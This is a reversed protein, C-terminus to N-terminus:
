ARKRKSSIKHIVLGTTMGLAGFILPVLFMDLAFQWNGHNILFYVTITAFYNLLEGIGFFVPIAFTLLSVGRASANILSLVFPIVAGLVGMLCFIFYGEIGLTNRIPTIWFLLVSVILAVTYTGFCLIKSKM